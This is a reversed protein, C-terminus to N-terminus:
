LYEIKGVMEEADLVQYILMLGTVIKGIATHQPAYVVCRHAMGAAALRLFDADQTFIVRSEQSALLLHAEDAM